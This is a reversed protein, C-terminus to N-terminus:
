KALKMSPHGYVSYALWTADGAARAKERASVTAAALDTGGRLTKYLAETFTRAPSDGVAWLTGVFAGAGSKLFAQAFGGVGTLSYGERATQCANLVVMPRNDADKLKSNQEAFTATLPDAVYREQMKGEVFVPEVRGELMLGANSINDQEAYGHCAFHLLDFQGPKSIIKYVSDSDAKVPAASFEKELFRREQEAERLRLKAQPYEPIVYRARGKRIKVRRPPWGSEHLWR